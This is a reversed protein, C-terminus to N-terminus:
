YVGNLHGASEKSRKAYKHTVLTKDVLTEVLEHCSQRPVRLIIIHDPDQM